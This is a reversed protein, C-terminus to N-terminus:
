VSVRLITYWNQSDHWYVQRPKGNHLRTALRLVRERIDDAVALKAYACRICVLDHLPLSTSYIFPRAYNILYERILVSCM